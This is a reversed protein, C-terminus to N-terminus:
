KRTVNWGGSAVENGSAKERASWTGKASDGDFTATLRVEGNPDPPFDYRATMKAGDFSVEALTAKYTPEGTVSVRGAIANSTDKELTLEFGGSSGAGEWTGTWTGVFKEGPPPADTRQAASGMVGLLFVWLCVCCRIRV